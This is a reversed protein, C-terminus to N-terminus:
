LLFTRMPYNLANHHTMNVSFVDVIVDFDLAFHIFCTLLLLSLLGPHEILICFSCKSLFPLRDVQPDM